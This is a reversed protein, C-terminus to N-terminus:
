FPLPEPCSTSRIQELRQRAIDSWPGRFEHELYAELHLAAEDQEETELLVEALLFHAEPYEPLVHLAVEFATKAAAFDGLEKHLCGIQTWAELFENDHEVASYYRELAGKANGLRYLCEALQFQVDASNPSDMAALRFAELAEDLKGADYLRCGEVLWDRDLRAAGVNRPILQISSPGPGDYEAGEDDDGEFDFLRQGSVPNVLGYRDRIVITHDSALLELQELPRAEGRLVEPLRQLSEELERRPIGSQLLESLRRASSVERFDFYPLRHVQKVSRILGKRAWSRIVHTSVGLLSSLMAPTYLRHVEDRHETLDLLALFDSENVIQLEAGAEQWRLAQQLKVSPQGSDELPWGEEGIVLMTTQRSVHESAEGGNEAVLDAAAAHTMSALTGTFSVREGKLCPSSQLNHGVNRPM